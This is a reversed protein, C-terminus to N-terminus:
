KNRNNNKKLNFFFSHYFKKEFSYAWNKSSKFDNKEKRSTKQKWKSKRTTKSIIIIIILVYWVTVNLQSIKLQIFLSLCCFPFDVTSPIPGKKKKM